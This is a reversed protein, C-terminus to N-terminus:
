ADECNMYTLAQPTTGLRANPVRMLLRRVQPLLQGWHRHTQSGLLESLVMARLVKLVTQNTRECLRNSQHSYAAVPHAQVRAREKLLKLVFSIFQAGNDSLVQFPEGWRYYVDHLHQAV